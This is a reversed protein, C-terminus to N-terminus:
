RLSHYKKSIRKSDKYLCMLGNDNVLYVDRYVGIVDTYRKMQLSHYKDDRTNCGTLIFVFFLLILLYKISKKIKLETGKWILM